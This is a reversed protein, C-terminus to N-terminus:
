KTLGHQSEFALLANVAARYARRAAIMRDIGNDGEKRVESMLDAKAAEVVADRLRAHKVSLENKVVMERWEAETFGRHEDSKYDPAFEIKGTDAM